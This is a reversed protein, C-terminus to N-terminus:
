KSRLCGKLKRLEERQKKYLLQWAHDWREQLLHWEMAMEFEITNAQACHSSSVVERERNLSNRSNTLVLHGHFTPRKGPFAPNGICGILPRGNPLLLCGEALKKLAREAAERTRFIIFAEGSHPSSIATHQIMKATCNLKLAHWVIDEVETSTYGPDLDWILVLMGRKQAAAMREEWPLKTFWKSMNDVNSRQTVEKTQYDNKDEESFLNKPYTKTSKANSLMWMEPPKKTSPGVKREVPQSLHKSESKPKILAKRSAKEMGDFKNTSVKDSNKGGGKTLKCTSVNLKVKKLPREDDDLDELSKIQEEVEANNGLNVGFRAKSGDLGANIKPSTQENQSRDIVLSSELSVDGRKLGDECKENEKVYRREDPTIFRAPVESKDIVEINRSGEKKDEKTIPNDKVIGDSKHSGTKNFVFKAEIGAVKENIKDSIKLQGVDFSRYFIFDAMHLEKDSPQPNREDKSICTVNCKGAIAELPNVNALGVGEGSALFLENEPVEEAGLYNQIECPRFFWLIKVRKTKNANEWIKILKGIFPEPEEEEYLYVSDYLAYDVGDFSYSEYFQVEKNKGGVGKKKGWKFELNESQGAKVMNEYPLGKELGCVFDTM